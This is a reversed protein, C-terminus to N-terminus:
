IHILSLMEGTKHAPTVALQYMRTLTIERILKKISWGEAVFRKALYDLLEPHTPKDGLSGFDSTNAALGRGFHQQWLRNVLVRATLPNDAHLMAEALEVRGSNKAGFPKANFAELFRRPVAQAPQKHNGRVFLPRDVAEAELVGPARQPQPIEAELKRYEAVLKAVEPSADPSNSLLGERVFYNLFQAQDDNMAGKRWARIGQRVAAAYRKALRKANPPENKAFVPQVFEAMEEKPAPQDEGTVLM